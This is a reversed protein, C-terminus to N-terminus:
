ITPSRITPRDIAQARNLSGDLRFLFAARAPTVGTIVVAGVPDAGIQLTSADRWAPALAPNLIPREIAM